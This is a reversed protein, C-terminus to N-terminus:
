TAGTLGDCFDRLFGGGWSPWLEVGVQARPTTITMMAASTMPNNPKRAKSSLSSPELSTFAAPDGLVVPGGSM